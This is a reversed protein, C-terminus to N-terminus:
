SNSERFLLCNHTLHFQNNVFGVLAIAFTLKRLQLSVKVKYQSKVNNGIFKIDHISPVAIATNSQYPFNNTHLIYTM